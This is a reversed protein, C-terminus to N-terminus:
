GDLFLADLADHRRPRGAPAPSPADLSQAGFGLTSDDETYARTPFDREAYEPDPMATRAFASLSGPEGQPLVGRGARRLQEANTDIIAALAELVRDSVGEAPLLGHEMQHYYGHVREQEATGSFGLAEALRRTLTKRDVQAANRLRRLVEPWSGSVGELSDWVRAVSLKAPSSEYAVPDWRRRPTQMLFSDIASELEQREGEPARDLLERVSPRDGAEFSARFEALLQEVSGGGAGETDSDHPNDASM